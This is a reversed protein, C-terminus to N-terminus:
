SSMGGAASRRTAAAAPAAGGRARPPRVPARRPPPTRRRALAAAPSAAGAGERVWTLRPAAICYPRGSQHTSTPNVRVSIDRLNILINGTFLQLMLACGMVRIPVIKLSIYCMLRPNLVPPHWNVTSTIATIEIRTRYKSM